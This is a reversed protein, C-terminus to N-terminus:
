GTMRARSIFVWEPGDEGPADLEPARKLGAKLAVRASAYNQPRVRAIVPRDPRRHLADEVVAVAAEGAVGRGWAAPALRYFLNSVARGRHNMVKIGCFGLVAPDERWSVAWYGLTHHEWHETWQQLRQQASSHDQLADSPNHRVALPDQHLRLVVDVDAASPRRLSLRATRVAVGPGPPQM